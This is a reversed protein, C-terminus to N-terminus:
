GASGASGTTGASGSSKLSLLQLIDEAVTYITINKKMALKAMRRYALDTTIGLRSAYASCAKEIIKREELAAAAKRAEERLCTIRQHLAHTMEIAPLLDREAVPKVLYHLAGVKKAREIISAQGYATLLLVPYGQDSIIKTAEIGDLGPMKIDLLVVDPKQERVLQVAQQGNGAEGVIIHGAEELMERIDMRILSEDDAIVIKLKPM